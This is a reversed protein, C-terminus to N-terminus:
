KNLQGVQRNGDMLGPQSTGSLTEVRVQAQAGTLSAVSALFALVMVRSVFTKMVEEWVLGSSVSSEGAKASESGSRRLCRTFITSFKPAARSVNWITRHRWHSVM